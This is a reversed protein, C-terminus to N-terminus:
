IAQNPAKAVGMVLLVMIEYQWLIRIYVRSEGVFEDTQLSM